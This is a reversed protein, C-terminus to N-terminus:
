SWVEAPNVANSHIINGPMVPLMTVGSAAAVSAATGGQTDGTMKLPLKAALEQAQKALDELDSHTKKIAASLTKDFLKRNEELQKSKNETQGLCRSAAGLVM